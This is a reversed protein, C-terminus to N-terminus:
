LHKVIEIRRNELARYFTEVEHKHVAITIYKAISSDDEKLIPAGAGTYSREITVNGLVKEVIPEKEEDLMVTYIDIRDGVRLTGAVSHELNEMNVSLLVTDTRDEDLAGLMSKTVVSGEDIGTLVYQGVLDEAKLYAAQPTDSLYREEVAFFKTLNDGTIETKAAVQTVAVVVKCKEYPALQRKEVKLLFVFVGGALLLCLVVPWVKNMKGKKEQM